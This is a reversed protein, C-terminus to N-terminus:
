ATAIAIRLETPRLYRAAIDRLREPTMATISRVQADFYGDPIDGMLTLAYYDIISLPTDLTTALTSMVDRRLRALEDAGMPETALLELEKRIESIVTDTYKIDCQASIQMTGSSRLGMLAAGIGYTLGKRERINTMLRSGFYGGLAIVTHRLDVYDTHERGITPISACIASQITHPMHTVRTQPEQPSPPIATFPEVTAPALQRAFNEVSSRVGPVCEMDGAVFIHVHHRSIGERHCRRVDDTTVNELQELTLPLLYPHSAGYSLEASITSAAYSPKTMATRLNAVRMRHRAEFSNDPFAPALVMESLLPLVALVKDTEGLLAAGSYANNGIPKFSVGNFDLIRAIDEGTHDQTGERLLPAVFTAAARVPLNAEGANWAVNINLIGCGPRNYSYITVGNCPTYTDIGPISLTEFERVPPPTTRDLM